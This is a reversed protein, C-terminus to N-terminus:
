RRRGTRLCLLGAIGFLGGALGAANGRGDGTVSCASAPEVAGTDSERADQLSETTQAEAVEVHVSHVASVFGATPEGDELLTLMAQFDHLGDELTVEFSCRTPGAAECAWPVVREDVRLETRVGAYGHTTGPDAAVHVVYAVGEAREGVAAISVVDIRPAVGSGTGTDLALANGPWIALLLALGSWSRRLM